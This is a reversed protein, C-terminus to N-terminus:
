KILEFTFTDLDKTWGTFNKDTESSKLSYYDFVVETFQISFFKTELELREIKAGSVDWYGTLDTIRKIRDGVKLDKFKKLRM